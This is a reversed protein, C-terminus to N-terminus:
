NKIEFCIIINGSAAGQSPGVTPRCFANLDPDKIENALQIYPNMKKTSTFAEM